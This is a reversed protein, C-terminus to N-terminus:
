PHLDGQAGEKLPKGTAAKLAIKLFSIAKGHDTDWYHGDAIRVQIVTLEPDDVSEFWAKALPSWYQEKRARDVHIAAVGNV